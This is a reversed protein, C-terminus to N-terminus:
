ASAKKGMGCLRRGLYRVCFESFEGLNPIRVDNVRFDCSGAGKGTIVSMFSVTFTFWFLEKSCLIGDPIPISSGRLFDSVYGYAVVYGLCLKVM